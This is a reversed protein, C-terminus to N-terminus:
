KWNLNTTERGSKDEGKGIRKGRKDQKKGGGRFFDWGWRGLRKRTGMEGVKGIIQGRESTNVGEFYTAV